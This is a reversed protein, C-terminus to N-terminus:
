WHAKILQIKSKKRGLHTAVLETREEMSLSVDSKLFCKFNRKHGLSYEIWKKDIEDNDPWKCWTQERKYYINM